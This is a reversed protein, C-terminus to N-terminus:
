LMLVICKKRCCNKGYRLLSSHKYALRITQHILALRKLQAGHTAGSQYAGAKGLYVLCKKKM